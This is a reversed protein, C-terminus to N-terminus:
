LINIGFVGMFYFILWCVITMLINNRLIPENKRKGEFYLNTFGPLLILRVIMSLGIFFSIGKIIMLILYVIWM